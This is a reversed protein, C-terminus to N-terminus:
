AAAAEVCAWDAVASLCTGLGANEVVDPADQARVWAREREHMEEWVARLRMVRMPYLAVEHARGRKRYRFSGVPFEDVVGVIGAEEAAEKGASEPPTLGAELNGKPVVWRKGSRSRVLLVRVGDEDVRFPIVGAQRVVARSGM